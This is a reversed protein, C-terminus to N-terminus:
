LLKEFEEFDLRIWKKLLKEYLYHNPNKRLIEHIKQVSYKKLFNILELEKRKKIKESYEKNRKDIKEKNELYYQQKKIRLKEKNKLYFNRQNVRNREKKDEM